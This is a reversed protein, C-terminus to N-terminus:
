EFLTKLQSSINIVAKSNLNCRHEGAERAVRAERRMKGDEENTQQGSSAFTSGHKVNMPEVSKECLKVCVSEGPLFFFFFLM